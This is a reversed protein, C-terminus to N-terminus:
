SSRRLTRNPIKRKREWSSSFFPHFIDNFLYRYFYRRMIFRVIGHRIKLHYLPQCNKLYQTANPWRWAIAPRGHEPDNLDYCRYTLCTRWEQKWRIAYVSKTICDTPNQHLAPIIIIGIHESTIKLPDRETDEQMYLPLSFHLRVLFTFSLSSLYKVFIGTISM